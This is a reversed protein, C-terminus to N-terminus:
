IYPANQFFMACVANLLLTLAPTFMQQDCKSFMKLCKFYMM